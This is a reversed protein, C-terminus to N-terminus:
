SIAFIAHMPLTRAAAAADDAFAPSSFSASFRYDSQRIPLPSIADADAIIRGALPTLTIIFAM